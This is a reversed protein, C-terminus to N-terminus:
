FVDPENKPEEETFRPKRPADGDRRPRDEHRPRRDGDRREGRDERRERREGDRREGEKRPGRDGGERRPGRERKAPEVYGEPKEQLARM